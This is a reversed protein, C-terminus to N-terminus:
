RGPAALPTLEAQMPGVVAISEAAARAGASAAQLLDAGSLTAAIFGGAFADGAGDADVEEAPVAPV